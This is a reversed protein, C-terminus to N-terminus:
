LISQFHVIKSCLHWFRAKISYQVYYRRPSSKARGMLHAQLFMCFMGTTNGCYGYQSCCGGNNVAADCTYSSNAGAFANGCTNDPSVARRSLFNYLGMDLDPAPLASAIVAFALGTALRLIGVRM